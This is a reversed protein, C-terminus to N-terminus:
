FVRYSKICVKGGFIATILQTCITQVLLTFLHLNKANYYDTSVFILDIFKSKKAKEISWAILPKGCM